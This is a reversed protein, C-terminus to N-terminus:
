GGSQQAEKMSQLLDSLGESIVQRKKEDMSLTKVYSRINKPRILERTSVAGGSMLIDFIVDVLGNREAVSMSALWNKLTRNIFQSGGGLEELYIFDKGLVEWSYPDHQLPGIQKSKVVIYPEEHELLRGVVSSQPIFTFIKPVVRRYGEDKMMHEPFGPGDQNHIELIQDQLAGDAMAAAYVALNGGKSHGTLFIPAKRNEQRQGKQAGAPWGNDTGSWVQWFDELYRLAEHQAPISEQFTMNFDEKWGVLTDDTGRYTVAATGDDLLFTIAAFQIEKGADFINRYFTVGVGGFRETEAAMRLLELDHKVRVKGGLDAKALFEKAVDRLFMRDHPTDSVIGSYDIYSLTSLILADVPNHGMKSFPIDGRWVLYDFMDAM